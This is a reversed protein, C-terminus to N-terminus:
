EDSSPHAVGPLKPERYTALLVFNCAIIAACTYFVSTWSLRSRMFAALLPGIWGGVNVLQYFFGWALSSNEPKTIHVLTGQIGPKFIATGTARLLAGAFFVLYTPFRAMVLYGLIKVFTSVFITRKYGFRDALGGILAPLISQTLAWLMLIDGFTTASVGLGGEVKPATAYLASVAKVGYFALREVMEMGGVVWFVFGLSAIAAGLGLQDHKDSISGSQVTQPRSPAM